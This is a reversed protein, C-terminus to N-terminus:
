EALRAITAGLRSDPADWFKLVLPHEQLVRQVARRQFGTGRGHVLRIRLLGMKRAEWLYERVVSPIDRPAFMHLDLTDEIPVQHTM